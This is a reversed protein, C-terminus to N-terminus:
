SVRAAAALEHQGGERVRRISHRLCRQERARHRRPRPARYKIGDMGMMEGAMHFGTILERGNELVVCSKLFGTHLAYLSRFGDGARYLSDGRNIRVRTSILKDTGDPSLGALLRPTYLPFLGSSRSPATRCSVDRPLAEEDLAMDSTLPTLTKDTSARM